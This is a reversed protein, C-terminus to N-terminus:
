LSQKYIQVKNGTYEYGSDIKKWNNKEYYGELDTYLYLDKYGRSKCYEIVHNQLEQGIGRNRYDVNVVLASLWPYLEQRSLLDGRWVGVTGILVDNEVAVFTIPLENEKLSHEVIGRYFNKSNKDGFNTNLEEIVEEILQPYDRLMGIKM